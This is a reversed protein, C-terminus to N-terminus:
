ELKTEFYESLNRSLETVFCALVLIFYLWIMRVRCGDIEVKTHIRPNISYNIQILPTLGDM